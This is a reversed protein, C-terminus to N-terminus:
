LLTVSSRRDLSHKGSVWVDGAFFLCALRLSDEVFALRLEIVDDYRISSHTAM